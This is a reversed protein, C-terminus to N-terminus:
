NGEPPATEPTVDPATEPATQTQQNGGIYGLTRLTELTEPDLDQSRTVMMNNADERVLFNIQKLLPYIQKELRTMLNRKEGPDNRLDFELYNKVHLGKNDVYIFKNTLNRMSRMYVNDSALRESFALRPAEHGDQILGALSEGQMSDARPVGLLALMTPAIDISQVQDSIVKGQPLLRPFRMILPVHLLEDYLTHSHLAVKGHEDFEEGHDSTIVILTKSDLGTKKLYAFLRGLCDDTQRIEGDYLAMLHDVDRQTAHIQGANIANIVKINGTIKGEYTSDFMTDYPPPPTYPAHPRFSHFFLFFNSKKERELFDIAEDVKEEVDNKDTYEVFREFGTAFGYNASLQGGGVIGITRYGRNYLIEALTTVKPDLYSEKLRNVRHYSPYLSTMLSMHSSMTYPAQSITNKFRVGESAIKDINPTTPRPYGYCGLHDARLTDISILVVNWDSKPAADEEIVPNSWASLIGSSDSDGKPWTQFVLDVTRGAYAKLDVQEDSWLAGKRRIPVAMSRQFLVHPDKGNPDKMSINFLVTGHVDNGEEDALGYGFKLVPNPGLDTHVSFVTTPPAVIVNETWLGTNVGPRRPKTVKLKFPHVPNDEILDRNISDSIFKEMTSTTAAESAGDENEHLLARLPTETFQVQDFHDMLRFLNGQPGPHQFLVYYGAVTIMAALVLFAVFNESSGSKKM